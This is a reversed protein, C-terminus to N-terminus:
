KAIFLDIKVVKLRPIFSLEFIINKLLKSVLVRDAINGRIFHHRSNNELSSLNEYVRAYTLLDLSVIDENSQSFWDLVFNSGIFGAAGSVLIAMNQLNLM